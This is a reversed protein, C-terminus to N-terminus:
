LAKKFEQMLETSVKHGEEFDALIAATVHDPVGHARAVTTADEVGKKIMGPVEDLLKVCAHLRGTDDALKKFHELHQGFVAKHDQSM